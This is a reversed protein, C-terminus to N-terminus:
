CYVIVYMGYVAFSLLLNIQQCSCKINVKHINGNSAIQSKLQLASSLLGFEKYMGRQSQEMHEDIGHYVLESLHGKMPDLLKKSYLRYAEQIIM